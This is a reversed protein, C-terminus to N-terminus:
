DHGCVSVAGTVVAVWKGTMSAVWFNLVM